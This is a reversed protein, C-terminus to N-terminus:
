STFYRSLRGGGGGGGVLLIDVLGAQSVTITGSANWVYYDYTQGNEVYSGVSATGVTSGIIANTTNASKFVNSRQRSLSLSASKISM